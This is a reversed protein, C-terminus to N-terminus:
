DHSSMVLLDAVRDAGSGDHRLSRVTSSESSVNIAEFLPIRREKNETNTEIRELIPRQLQALRSPSARPETVMLNM